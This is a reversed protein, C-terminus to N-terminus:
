LIALIANKLIELDYKSSMRHNSNKSIILSTEAHTLKNLFKIQSELDVSTDKLGYLLIAKKKIKIKKNLLLFKKANNIFKNTFIYPSKSYNSSLKIEKKYKYKKYEVTSLNKLIRSTFDFASAIGVIGLLKKKIVLSLYFAIWGGMSSGILIVPYNTKNEILVKSENVWDSIFLNNIDGSSEGHGSYDFRLYEFGYDKRLNEILDAKKGKKDSRYGCLFVISKKLGNKTKKKLIYSIKNKKILINNKIMM